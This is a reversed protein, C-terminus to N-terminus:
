PTGFHIRIPGMGKMQTPHFCHFNQTGKITYSQCFELEMAEHQKAFTENSFSM